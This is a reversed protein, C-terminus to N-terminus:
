DERVISCSVYFGSKVARSPDDLIIKRVEVEDFWVTGLGFTRLYLPASTPQGGHWGLIVCHHWEGVTPPLYYDGLFLTGNGGLFVAPGRETADASTRYHFSLLYPQDADFEVPQYFGAWQAKPADAQIEHGTVRMAKLGAFSQKEDIEASFRAYDTEWGFTWDVPMANKADEFGGNVVLNEGLRWNQIPAGIHYAIMEDRSLNELDTNKMVRYITVGDWGARGKSDEIRILPLMLRDSTHGRIVDALRVADLDFLVFYEGVQLQNLNEITAPRIPFRGDNWFFFVRVIRKDSAVLRSGDPLNALIWDGAEQSVRESPAGGAWLGSWLEGTEYYDRLKWLHSGMFVVVLTLILGYLWNYSDQFRNVVRDVVDGIAYASFVYGLFLYRPEFFGTVFSIAYVLICSTLYVVLLVAYWNRQGQDLQKTWGWWNMGVLGIMPGVLVAQDILSFSLVVKLKSWALASKSWAPATESMLVDKLQGGVARVFWLDVRSHTGYWLGLAMVPLIFAIVSGLIRQRIQHPHRPLFLLALPAISGMVASERVYTSIVLAFGALAYYHLQDTHIAWYLVVVYLIIFWSQLPDVLISWMAFRMIWTSTVVILAGIYGGLRRNSIWGWGVVGLGCLFVAGKTVWFAIDYTIGFLRFLLAIVLSFLPPRYNVPLWDCDAWGHGNLLNLAQSTYMGSDAGVYRADATLLPLSLLFILLLAVLDALSM